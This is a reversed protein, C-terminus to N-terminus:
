GLFQLGAEYLRTQGHEQKYYALLRKHAAKPLKATEWTNLNQVTGTLNLWYTDDGVDVLLASRVYRANTPHALIKTWNM